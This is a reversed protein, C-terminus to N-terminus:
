CHQQPQSLCELGELSTSTFPREGPLADRKRQNMSASIVQLNDHHHAGGAALPIIHDVHFARGLRKTLAAADSHMIREIEPDHEPHLAAMKIARYKANKVAIAEGNEASYKANYAAKAERNEARYKAAIAERNEAYWKAKRALVVDRNEARYKAAYAAFAERNKAYYKANRAKRCVKCQGSLGDKRSKDKSFGDLPKTEKCKTCTKM